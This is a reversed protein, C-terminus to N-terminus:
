TGRSADKVNQAGSKAVNSVAAYMSQEVQMQASLMTMANMETSLTEMMGGAAAVSM